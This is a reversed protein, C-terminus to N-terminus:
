FTTHTHTHLHQSFLNFAFLMPPFIYNMTDVSKLFYIVCAKNLNWVSNEVMKLLMM